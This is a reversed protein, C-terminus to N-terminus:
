LSQVYDILKQRLAPALSEGSGAALNEEVHSVKSTAPIACTVAPHSVIFKLLLQAWSTASAEAEAWAPLPHRQMAYVLRGRQYPRNVIVAIGRDRALPLLRAEAERDLLNYTLQVFDLPQTRMIQELDEHRRGHSTTIGVYGLVGQAKMAFLTQLHAEWAVLNHVQLLEFQPIRWANRSEDIQAPGGGTDSTWIKDAAFIADASDLKALGHGITAQASGYMPSSDIMQGGGAAFAQIVRACEDLLVPDDGVNFTIWSGLGVCPMQAGSSPIIRTAPRVSPAANLGSPATLALAVAASTKLFTRRALQYQM